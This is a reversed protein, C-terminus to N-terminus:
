RVFVVTPYQKVIDVLHKLPCKWLHDDDSLIDFLFPLMNRSLKSKAVTSIQRSIVESLDLLKMLKQFPLTIENM